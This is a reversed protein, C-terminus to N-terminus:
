IELRKEMIVMGIRRQFGVRENIALMQKNDDGAFVCIAQYGQKGAWEAARMKLATAIGRGRYEELVGTMAAELKDKEQNRYGHWPKGREPDRHRLWTSGVFREGDLAIFCGDLLLIDKGVYEKVEEYILPPHPPQGSGQPPLLMCSNFLDVQKKLSEPDRELEEKLNTIAIGQSEMRKGSEELLSRDIADLPQFLDWVLRIRAFGCKEFFDLLHKEPYDAPWSRIAERIWVTTAGLEELDGSLKEYLADGVGKQLMEFSAVVYMRFRKPDADQQEICGYGALQGTDPDNVAYHRRVRNEADFARRVRLWHENGEQDFPSMVNAIQLIPEWDQEVARRIASAFREDRSPREGELYDCVMDILREKLKGRASRLRNTVTSEPVCLFASIEKMSHGSIYFLTTAQREKEPLRGIAERVQEETERRESEQVPDPRRDPVDFAKELPAIELRRARIFRNCQRSVIRQFWGPFAAPQRLKSLERYVTVFAEQAADEALVSNGLRAYACAFAMDQFRRVLEAFGEQRERFDQDTARAVLQEVSEM